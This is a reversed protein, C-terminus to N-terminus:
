NLLVLNGLSNPKTTITSYQFAKSKLQTSAQKALVLMLYFQVWLFRSLSDSFLFKDNKAITLLMENAMGHSGHSTSPISEKRFSFIYFSNLKKYRFLFTSLSYRSGKCIERHSFQVFFISETILGLYLLFVRFRSLLATKM